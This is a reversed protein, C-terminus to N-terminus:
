LKALCRLASFHFVGNWAIQLAQVDLGATNLILGCWRMGPGYMDALRDRSFEYDIWGLGPHRLSLVISGGEGGKSMALRPEAVARAKNPGPRERAVGTAMDARLSSLVRVLGDIDDASWRTQIKPNGDVATMMEVREGGDSLRFRLEVKGM